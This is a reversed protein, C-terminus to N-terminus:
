PIYQIWIDGPNGTGSPASTSVTKNAGKWLVDTATSVYQKTAAHLANTPDANLTLFGAMTGGALQLYRLDLPATVAVSTTFYSLGDVYDKSVANTAPDGPLTSALNVIHYGNMDLDASVPVGTMLLASWSGVWVNLTGASTDYWLQGLYPVTPTTLAVAVPSTWEGANDNWTQLTSEPFDTGNVPAVTNDSHIREIWGLTQQKYAQDWRYLTNAKIAEGFADTGSPSSSTYWYSGTSPSVPTTDTGVTGGQVSSTVDSWTKATPDFRYWITGVSDRWYFKQSLWLQGTLPHAPPTAGAFNEALRVLDEDVSEGWELAGRGYLRLTTNAAAGGPGNFSGSNITFGTKLPDTFDISYTTM